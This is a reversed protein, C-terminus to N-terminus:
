VLKTQKIVGPDKTVDVAEDRVNGIDGDDKSDERHREAAENKLRFSYGRALDVKSWGSLAHRCGRSEAITAVKM